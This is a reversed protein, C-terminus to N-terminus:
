PPSAKTEDTVPSARSVVRLPRRSIARPSAGVPRMRARASSAGADLLVLRVPLEGGRALRRDELVAAPEQELPRLM